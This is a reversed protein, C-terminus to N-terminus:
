QTEEYALSQALSTQLNPSLHNLFVGLGKRKSVDLDYSINQTFYTELDFGPHPTPLLMLLNPIEDLGDRLAANFRSVWDPPLPKTSVWAAFVFPLNAFDWWAQGLDYNYAFRTELEIVRDGIVLGGVKGGILQEFGPSAPLLIPSLHWHKKLLVQLLEVSTRSQYDLYIHTMEELPVDGLVSVTRVAGVAGICYDSILTPNPLKPLIAVPVLGVDAEGSALKSACLSPMDLQLDIESKLDSRLLGYLLPKTNLYSVATIRIKSM